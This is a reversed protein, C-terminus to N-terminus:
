SPASSRLSVPEPASVLRWARLLEATSWAQAPCGDPPFPPQAGCVESIHGICVSDMREILPWLVSRLHQRAASRHAPSTASRLVAEAYAGLLWPWVTGNHYARDREFLSGTYRPQYAADTPSLTRLGFPTLLHEHVVAVVARRQDSDLPSHELSAAFIQNPRIETIPHFIDGVPELRDYLGGAPNIFAAFAVRCSEALTILRQQDPGQTLRALRVLAHHWLANIEVAKGHRPTFTVGDRQADMWTLQSEPSGATILGDSDLRIGFDTGSAYANIISLCAELLAPREPIDPAHHLLETTAHIFWLSADVTNYHADGTYDDFRNPVLGRRIHQAFTSLCAAAQAHRGTEILLGPLAIMTDRGWDAFWPYGALITTGFHPAQGRRVIFADASETLRTLATRAQTESPDLGSLAADLGPPERRAVPEIPGNDAVIWISGEAAAGPDFEIYYTAPVLTHEISDQGRDAERHYYVNRWLTRAPQRSLGPDHEIRVHSSASSIMLSRGNASLKFADSNNLSHFDRLCVLPHLTLVGAAASATLRYHVRALSREAALTLTKTLSIGGPFTYRWICSNADRTFSALGPAATPAPSGHFHLPTIWHETAPRPVTITLREAIQSVTAVRDVPPRTAAVLLSHYRRTPTGLTTGMAFGGLCNTLLFETDLSPKALHVKNFRTM